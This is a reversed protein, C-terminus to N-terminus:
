RLAHLLLIRRRWDSTPRLVCPREAHRVRANPNKGARHRDQNAPLCLTANNRGLLADLWPLSMTALM